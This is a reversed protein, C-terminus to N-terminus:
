VDVDDEWKFKFRFDIPKPRVNEIEVTETELKNIFGPHFPAGIENERGTVEVEDELEFIRRQKRIAQNIGIVM